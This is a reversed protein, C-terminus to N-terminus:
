SRWPLISAWSDAHTQQRIKMTPYWKALWRWSAWHSLLLKVNSHEIAGALHAAATDVTVIEDMLSMLAACDAFDKFKYSRVGSAFAEEAGQAQVSYFAADSDLGAVLTKLPITRPYDGDYFQGISWAIGVRRRKRDGIRERWKQRLSPDIAIRLNPLIKDPAIAGLFYPLMLMPCFYDAHQNNVVPGVQQAIRVLEAPVSMVVNFNRKRLEAVYRLCMITDGFGHAHLVRLCKGILNEGNWPKIGAEVAAKCQARQFPPGQECQNYDAFGEAWQGLALKIFARNFRAHVTSAIAVTLDAELAARKLDNCRFLQSARNFHELYEGICIDSHQIKRYGLAKGGRTILIEDEPPVPKHGNSGKIECLEGRETLGRWGEDTVELAIFPDLFPLEGFGSYLTTM